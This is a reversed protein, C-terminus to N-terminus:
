RIPEMRLLWAPGDCASCRFDWACELLFDRHSACHRTPEASCGCPKLWIALAVPEMPCPQHSPGVCPDEPQEDAFTVWSLDLDEAVATM